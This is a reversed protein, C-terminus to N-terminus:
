VIALADKNRVHWYTDGQFEYSLTAQPHLVVTDGKKVGQEMLTTNIISATARQKEYKDKSSEPIFLSGIKEKAQTKIPQMLSNNGYGIWEKKDESYYALILSADIRYWGKTSDVIYPSDNKVGRFIEQMLISPDIFLTDGKKIPTKHKLPTNVVVARRSASEFHSFRKDIFISAGGKLKKKDTYPEKIEIIFQTLGQM